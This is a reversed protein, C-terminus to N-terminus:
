GRIFRIFEALRFKKMGRRLYFAFRIFPSWKGFVREFVKAREMLYQDEGSSSGSSHSPHSALIVPLFVGQGGAKILDSIFVYEDGLHNPSGAGFHEDFRIGYRKISDLRVVMEITGAKASNFLHLKGATKPYRKRLRGHEDVTTGLVADCGEHMNLYRVIEALGDEVITADDDAFVLYKTESNDIVLNRSKAVGTEKSEIVKISRDSDRISYEISNPNQVSIVINHPFSFHPFRINAVREALSSYGITIESTDSV